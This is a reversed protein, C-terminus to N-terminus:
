ILKLRLLKKDILIKRFESYDDHYWDIKEEDRCIQIFDDFSMGSGRFFDEGEKRVTDILDKFQAETDRFTAKKAEPWMITRGKGELTYIKTMARVEHAYDKDYKEQLATTPSQETQELLDKLYSPRDAIKEMDSKLGPLLEFINTKGAYERDDTGKCIEGNLVFNQLQDWCENIDDLNYAKGDTGAFFDNVATVRKELDRTEKLVDDWKNLLERYTSVVGSPENLETTITQLRELAENYKTQAIKFGVTNVRMSSAGVSITSNPNEATFKLEAEYAALPLLLPQMPFIRDGDKNTEIRADFESRIKAIQKLLEKRGEDLEFYFGKLVKIRKWLPYHPSKELQEYESLSEPTYRFMRELGPQYVTNVALKLTRIAIVALKLRQEYVPLGDGSEEHLKEWSSKLFDLDLNKLETSANGLKHRAEQANEKKLGSGVHAHIKKIEDAATTFPGDVWDKASKIASELSHKTAQTYATNNVDLLGMTELITALQRIVDKPKVLDELEYLFKTEVVNAEQKMQCFKLFAIISPHLIATEGDDTKEVLELRPKEQYKMGPSVQKDVLKKFAELEKEDKFHGNDKNCVHTYSNGTILAGYGHAFAKLEDPSVKGFFLPRLILGQKDVSRKWDDLKRQLLQQADSIVSNFFRTRFDNMEFVTGCLGFRAIYDAANRRLNHFVLSSAIRPVNKRLKETLEQCRVDQEEFILIVPSCPERGLKTLDDELEGDTSKSAYLCFAEGAGSLNLPSRKSTIRLGISKFGKLPQKEAEPDLANVLGRLVADIREDPKKELGAYAEELQTNKASDRLYGKEEVKVKNLRHFDTLFSFAPAIYSTGDGYRYEEELFFGHLHSAFFDAQESYPSLTKVQAIFENLDSCVLLNGKREKPLALTAYAKLSECVLELDFRVEGRLELETGVTNDFGCRVMHALIRHPAPPAVEELETFLKGGKGGQDTKKLFRDADDSDIDTGIAKPLLGFMSRRIESYDPDDKPIHYEGINELEFVKGEAQAYNELLAPVSKSGHQLNAHCYHMMVNFWGFNRNAAFFVAQRLGEPYSEIAKAIDPREDSLYSFFEEVDSFSNTRLEHIKTRREIARISRLLDGVALSCLLIFNVNPFDQRAEEAKIVRPLMTLLGQDIAKREEAELGDRSVDTIDEIEDVVILLQEIGISKLSTIAAQAAEEVDDIKLAEEIEKEIQDWGKAKLAKLTLEIVRDQNRVMKNSEHSRLSLMRSLAEVTVSPIWNDVNIDDGLPGKTVQIYRTFLPLIGQKLNADLVRQEKSDVIWWVDDSLAELCIEHGVRSKGVGWGGVVVFFGTLEQGSGGAESCFTKLKGFLKKQGVMPMLKELNEPIISVGERQWPNNNSM